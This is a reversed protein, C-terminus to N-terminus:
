RFERVNFVDSHIASTESPALYLAFLGFGVTLTDMIVTVFTKERRHQVYETWYVSIEGGVVQV